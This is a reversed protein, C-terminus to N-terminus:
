GDQPIMQRSQKTWLDSVYKSTFYLIRCQMGLMGKLCFYHTVTAATPTTSGLVLLPAIIFVVDLSWFM